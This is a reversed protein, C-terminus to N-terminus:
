KVWYGVSILPAKLALGQRPAPKAPV